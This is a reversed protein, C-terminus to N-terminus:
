PTVLVPLSVVGIEQIKENVAKNFVEYGEQNLHVGDGTHLNSSLNGTDDVLHHYLPIHYVDHRENAILAIHKNIKNIVHNYGNFGVSEDVPLVDIFLIPINEPLISIIERYKEAIISPSRKYRNYDNVGVQLVIVSAKDLLQYQPIREILGKTTDMSIGYNIANVSVANVDNRETISDGLFIVLDQLSQVVYDLHINLQKNYHPTM